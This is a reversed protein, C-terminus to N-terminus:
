RYSPVLIEPLDDTVTFSCGPLTKVSGSCFLELFREVGGVNPLGYPAHRYHMPVACKPKLRRIVQKAEEPGITYYGGVPVLLVDVEGIQATQEDTLLHGLDGLHCVSKGGASFVHITNTGRLAGNQEDHFSAIERVAFPSKKPPLLTVGERYNHDHHEHSCFVAHAETKLPPYGEVGAYPDIVLRYGNEELIFCSHGLWTVTMKMCEKELLHPPPFIGAERM